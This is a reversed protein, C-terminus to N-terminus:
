KQKTSIQKFEIKIIHNKKKIIKKFGKFSIDKFADQSLMHGRLLNFKIRADKDYEYIVFLGNKNLKSLIKPIAQERKEWHHYSLSTYIIDFKNKFPIIRSSGLKLFMKKKLKQLKNKAIKLMEPSPDLGYFKINKFKEDNALKNLILGNGFGIDLISKTNQTIYNKIDKYVFNHLSLVGSNICMSYLHSTIKGFREEHEGYFDKM